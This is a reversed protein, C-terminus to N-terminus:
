ATEDDRVFQSISTTFSQKCNCDRINLYDRGSKLGHCKECFERGCRNCKHNEVEGFRCCPCIGDCCAM